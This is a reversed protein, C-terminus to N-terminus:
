PRCSRAASTTPTAPCGPSSWPRGGDEGALTDPAAPSWYSWADGVGPFAAVADTLDEGLAAVDADDVTGSSPSVLLAVNPSGTGFREALAARAAASESGPAEYRNLSLSGVTTAAVTFSALLVLVSTVLVRWPRRTVLRGLM